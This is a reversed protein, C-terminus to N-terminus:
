HRTIRKTLGTLYYLPGPEIPNSDEPTTTSVIFDKQAFPPILQPKVLLDTLTTETAEIYIM